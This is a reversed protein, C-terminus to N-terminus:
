NVGSMLIVTTGPAFDLEGGADAGIMVLSQSANGQLRYNYMQTGDGLRGASGGRYGSSRARSRVQDALRGNNPGGFWVSCIRTPSEGGISIVIKDTGTGRSVRPNAGAPTQRLGAPTYGAAAVQAADALALTGAMAAPCLEFVAREVEARHDDAPAAALALAAIAILM